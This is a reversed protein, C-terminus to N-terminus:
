RTSASGGYSDQDTEHITREGAVFTFTITNALRVSTEGVAAM